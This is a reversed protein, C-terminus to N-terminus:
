WWRWIRKSTATAGSSSPKELAFRANYSAPEWRVSGCCGVVGVGSQLDRIYIFTGYSRAGLRQALAHGRANGGSGTGWRSYGAGSNTMM